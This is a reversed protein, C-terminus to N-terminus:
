EISARVPIWTNIINNLSGDQKMRALQQNLQQLLAPQNKAVGWALQEETLPRRLSMLSSYRRDKDINWTTTADHVVADIQGAMLAALAPEVSAFGQTKADGHFKNLFAAGTTNNVYGITVDKQLLALPSNFRNIDALRIIGMQGVNLYPQTFNIQEAREATISMGSMIVDIEGRQLAPILENWPIVKFNFQHKSQQQLQKAFDAVM